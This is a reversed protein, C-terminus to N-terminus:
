MAFRLIQKDHTYVRARAKEAIRVKWHLSSKLTPSLLDYLFSSLAEKIYEYFM